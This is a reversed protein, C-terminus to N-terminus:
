IGAAARPSLLAARLGALLLLAGVMHVLHYLGNHDFPWILTLSVSGSAQIAAAIITVLVGAAML